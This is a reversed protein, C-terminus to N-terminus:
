LSRMQQRSDAEYKLRYTHFQETDSGNASLEDKYRVLAHDWLNDSSKFIQRDSYHICACSLSTKYNRRQHRIWSEAIDQTRQSMALYLLFKQYTLKASKPDSM